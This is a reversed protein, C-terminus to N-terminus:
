YTEFGYHHPNKNGWKHELARCKTMPSKVHELAGYTSMPEKVDFLQMPVNIKLNLHKM